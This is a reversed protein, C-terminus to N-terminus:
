SKPTREPTQCVIDSPTDPVAAAGEIDNSDLNNRKLYREVDSPDVQRGRVKFISKKGAANRNAMKRSIALMESKRINKAFSWTKIRSKYMKKRGSSLEVAM